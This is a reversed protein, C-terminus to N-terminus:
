GSLVHTERCAGLLKGAIAKVADKGARTATSNTFITGGRRTCPDIFVFTFVGTDGGAHNL